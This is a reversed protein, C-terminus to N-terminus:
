RAGPEDQLEDPDGAHDARRARRRHLRLGGYALGGGGLMSGAVVRVVGNSAAERILPGLTGTVACVIAVVATLMLVLAILADRRIKDNHVCGDVVNSWPMAPAARARRPGQVRGRPPPELMPSQTAAVDLRRVRGKSNNM